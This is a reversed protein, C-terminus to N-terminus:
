EKDCTAGASEYVQTISDLDIKDNDNLLQQISSDIALLEDIDIKTYDIDTTSTLTNGNIEVNYNYHEINDFNSYINEVQQKYQQLTDESDTTVKETTQVRNVNEGEYTVEYRLDMEVGNLNATRTCIMKEETPTTNGQGCGTVLILLAVGLIIIKKM